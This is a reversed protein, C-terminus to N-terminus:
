QVAVIMNTGYYGTEGSGNTFPSISVNSGNIDNGPRYKMGTGGFLIRGGTADWWAWRGDIATRNIYNDGSTNTEKLAGNSDVWIRNGSPDYTIGIENNFIQQNQLVSYTTGAAGYTIISGNSFGASVYITTTDKIVLGDGSTTYQNTSVKARDTATRGNMRYVDDDISGSGIAAWFIFGDYTGGVMFDIGGIFSYGSEERIMTMESGDYRCRWIKMGQVTFIWREVPDLCLTTPETSVFTYLTTITGDPDRRVLSMEDILTNSSSTSDTTFFLTGAAAFPADSEYVRQKKVLVVKTRETALDLECYLPLYNADDYRVATEPSVIGLVEGEIVELPDQQQAIRSEASWEAIDTYEDVDDVVESVWKAPERWQGSGTQDVQVMQVALDRGGTGDTDVWLTGPFWARRQRVIPGSTAPVVPSAKFRTFVAKFQSGESASEDLLRIELNDVYTDYNAGTDGVIQVRLVGDLEPLTYDVTDEFLEWSLLAGNAVADDALAYSTSVTTWGTTTAYYTPESTDYPVLLVFLDSEEIGSSVGSVTLEHAYRLSIFLKLPQKGSVHILDISAANGGSLLKGAYTGAYSNTSRIFKGPASTWLYSETGSVWGNEFDYFRSIVVDTFRDDINPGQEIEVLQVPAELRKTTGRAFEAATANFTGMQLTSLAVISTSAHIYRQPARGTIYEGGAFRHKLHWRGDLGNWLCADVAELIGLIQSEANDRKRGERQFIIDLRNLRILNLTAGTATINEPYIGVVYDINQAITSSVLLYRAINHLTYSTTTVADLTRLNSLGCYAYLETVPVDLNSLLLTSVTELRLRFRMTYAGTSDTLLIQYDDEEIGDASLENYLASSPDLVQLRFDAPMIRADLDATTEGWIIRATRAGRLTDPEGDFGAEQLAVIWTRTRGAITWQYKTGFAM